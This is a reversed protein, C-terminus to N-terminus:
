DPVFELDKAGRIQFRARKFTGDPEIQRRLDKAQAAGEVKGEAVFHTPESFYGLVHMFRFGFCEGIVEEGFKVSWQRHNADSVTMRLSTGGSEQKVFKFPPAPVQGCGGAGCRWDDLTPAKPARWLIKGPARSEVADSASVLACLSFLAAVFKMPSVM